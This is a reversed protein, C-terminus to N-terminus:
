GECPCALFGDPHQTVTYTGHGRTGAVTFGGRIRSVKYADAQFRTSKATYYPVWVASLAAAATKSM